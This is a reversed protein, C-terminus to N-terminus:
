EPSWDDTPRAISEVPLIDKEYGSSNANQSETSEAHDTLMRTTCKGKHKGHERTDKEM